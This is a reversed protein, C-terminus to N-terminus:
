YSVVSHQFKLSQYVSLLDESCREKDNWWALHLELNFRERDNRRLYYSHVRKNASKKSAGLLSCSVAMSTRKRESPYPFDHPANTHSHNMAMWKTISRRQRHFYNLSLTRPLTPLALVRPSEAICRPYMPWLTSHTISGIKSSMLREGQPHRVLVRRDVWNGKPRVTHVM